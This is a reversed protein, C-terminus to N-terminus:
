FPIHSLREGNKWEQKFKNGNTDFFTGKGNKKDDKFEGEYRNGDAFYFTGKGNFDGIAM